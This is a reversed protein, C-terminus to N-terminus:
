INCYNRKQELMPCSVKRGSLADGRETVAKWVSKFSGLRAGSFKSIRVKQHFGQKYYQM